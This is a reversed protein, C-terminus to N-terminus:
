YLKQINENIGFQAGHIEELDVDVEIPIGYKELLNYFFDYVVSRIMGMFDGGEYNSLAEHYAADITDNVIYEQDTGEDWGHFKM